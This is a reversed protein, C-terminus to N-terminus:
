TIGFDRWDDSITTPPRMWPPLRPTALGELHPDSTGIEPPLLEGDRLWSILDDATEFHLSRHDRWYRALAVLMAAEILALLIAARTVVAM